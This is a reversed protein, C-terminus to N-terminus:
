LYLVVIIMALSVAALVAGGYIAVKARRLFQDQQESEPQWSIEFTKENTGKVILNRDLEDKPQPNEICTGAVSYRGFPRICRETLRFIHGPELPKRESSEAMRQGSVYAALAAENPKDLARTRRAPSGRRLQPEGSPSIKIECQYSIVDFHAGRVDVLVKGTKDQLYFRGGPRDAFYDMWNEEQVNGVVHAAIEVAVEYLLCPKAFIPSPAAPADAPMASGAVEVFGMAMGRITSVTTDSHFRYLRYTSLGYFVCAIGLAFLLWGNIAVGMQDKSVNDGPGVVIGIVIGVLVIGVFWLAFAIQPRPRREKRARERRVLWIAFWLLFGGLIAIAALDVLFLLLHERVAQMVEGAASEGSGATSRSSGDSPGSSVDVYVLVRRTLGGSAPDGSGSVGTIAVTGGSPTNPSTQLTVVAGANDEGNLTVTSPTFTCSAGAPLEACALSVRGTFGGRPALTLQYSSKEGRASAETTSSSPSTSLSFDTVKQTFVQTSTSPAFNRDGYYIATLTATGAEHITLSYGGAAVPAKCQSTGVIWVDGTPTLSGSTPEVRFSVRVPQGVVSPNPTVATIATRTARQPPLSFATGALCLLATWVCCFRTDSTLRM